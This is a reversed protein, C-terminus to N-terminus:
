SRIRPERLIILRYFALLWRRVPRLAMWMYSYVKWKRGTILDPRAKGKRYFGIVSAKLDDKRCHEPTLNGDGLLTIAEGEIKVIRHLVYFGPHIEALIPDGVKYDGMKTLLAKDRGNELFPRMSVGKLPLTVTHGEHIYKVIEPILEANSLSLSDENISKQHDPKISKQHDPQM